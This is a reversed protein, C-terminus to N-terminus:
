GCPSEVRGVGADRREFAYAVGLQGPWEAVADSRRAESGAFPTGWQEILEFGLLKTYFAVAADVDGVLYRFIAM